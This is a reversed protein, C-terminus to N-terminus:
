WFTFIRTAERTESRSLVERALQRFVSSKPYYSILFNGYFGLFAQFLYFVKVITSCSYSFDATFYEM